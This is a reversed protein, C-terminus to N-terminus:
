MKSLCNILEDKKGTVIYPGKWNNTLNHCVVKKRATDHIWVAQGVRLNQNMMIRSYRIM